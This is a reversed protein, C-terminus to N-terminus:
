ERRGRHLCVFISKLPQRYMCLVLRIGYGFSRVRCWVGGHSTVNWRSLPYVGLGGRVRRWGRFGSVITGRRCLGLPSLVTNCAILTHVFGFIQGCTPPYTECSVWGLFLTSLASFGLLNFKVARGVKRSSRNHRKASVM